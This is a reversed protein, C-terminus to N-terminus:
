ITGNKNDIAKLEKKANISLYRYYTTRSIFYRPSIINRYVSEQFVGKETQELTINQIDIIKLLYNRKNYAMM